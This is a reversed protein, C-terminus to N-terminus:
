VKLSPAISAMLRTIANKNEVADADFNNDHFVLGLSQIRSSFRVRRNAACLSGVIETSFRLCGGFQLHELKPCGTLVNAFSSQIICVIYLDTSGVVM